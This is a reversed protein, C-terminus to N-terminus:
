LQSNIYKCHFMRAFAKLHSFRVYWEIFMYHSLPVGFILATNTLKVQQSSSACRTASAGADHRWADVYGFNCFKQLRSEAYIQFRSYNPEHVQSKKTIMWEPCLPFWSINLRNLAVKCLTTSSRMGAPLLVLVGWIMRCVARNEPWCCMGFNWLRFRGGWRLEDGDEEWHVRQYECAWGFKWFFVAQTPEGM